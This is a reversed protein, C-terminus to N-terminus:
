DKVFEVMVPAPERNALEVLTSVGIWLSPTLLAAHAVFGAVLLHPAFRNFPLMPHTHTTSALGVVSHSCNRAGM